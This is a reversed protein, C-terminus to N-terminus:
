PQSTRNSYLGHSQTSMMLCAAMKLVRSTIARDTHDRSGSLLRLLMNDQILATLSVECRGVASGDPLAFIRVQRRGIRDSRLAARVAEGDPAVVVEQGVSATVTPGGPLRVTLSRASRDYIIRIRTLSRERAVLVVSGGSIAVDCSKLNVAIPRTAFVLAEGATFDFRGAARRIVIASGAHRFIAGDASAIGAATVPQRSAAAPFVCSIPRFDQPDAPLDADRSGAAAGDSWIRNQDLREGPGGNLPALPLIFPAAQYGPQAQGYGGPAESRSKLLSGPDTRSAGGALWGAGAPAATGSALGATGPLPPDAVVTVHSGLRIADGPLSGTSFDVNRGLAVLLDEAPGPQIGNAGFYVRGGAATIVTVKPPTVGAVPTAPVPGLVIAVNGLSPNSATYAHIYAGAGISISGGAIDNDQLTINGEMADLRASGTLCLSGSGAALSISGGYTHIVRASLSGSASLSFSGAASSRDLAVSGSNNIFASGGSDVQLTAAATQVPAAATGISGGSTTVIVQPAALLSGPQCYVNGGATTKLFVKRATVTGAVTIDGSAKLKFVNGASSDLLGVSGYQRLHASGHGATSAALMRAATHVAHSSTGINGLQSALNVNQAALTGATWVMDGSGQTSIAISNTATVNGGLHVGGNNATTQINVRSSASIPGYIGMNGNGSISLSGDSFLQGSAGLSFVTGTLTSSIAVVASSPALTGSFQETGNIVVRPTTSAATLAINMPASSQFDKLTLTVHAPLNEATLTPALVSPTLVANGGIAIGGSVQLTGGILGQSQMSVLLGVVAPDTLDLSTLQVQPPPPPPNPNIAHSQITVSGGLQIAGAALGGTDFVVSSGDVSVQNAPASASIGNAGWFVNGGNSLTVSVSSPTTGAVPSQPTSGIVVNIRGLATGGTTAVLTSGQGIVIAGTTTNSNAININGETASLSSGPAVTLPASADGAATVSISGNSATLNGVTLAGSAASITIASATATVTGGMANVNATATGAGANFSVAGPASVSGGSLTVSGATAPNFLINAGAATAALQGSSGLSISLSGDGANSQLSISGGSATMSGAVSVTGSTIALSGASVSGNVNLSNTSISVANGSVTGDVNASGGALSVSSGSATMGPAVSIASAPGSALSLSGGNASVNDTLSLNGGSTLSINGVPATVAGVVLEGTSVSASVSSGNATLTGIMSNPSFSVAGTGGNLSVGSGASLAGGSETIAGAATPNFLVSAGSASATLTGGAGVTVSLSGDAANSQLTLNGSSATLSGNVALTGATVAVSGGSLSGNVSLSDASVSLASGSVAGDVSVSGGALSVSSGSATVGSSVSLASTSGSALSLSGGNASVNGTLSLNGNGAALSVGGASSTVTGAVLDGTSVSVSVSTGGAALTGSLSNPNFSVAGAGGNLSVAAGAAIAGGTETIAGAATPNFLVSAGSASASLAGGAGLAVSLSGTGANSQLSINGANATVIGNLALTGSTVSVSNGSVAAGALLSLSGTPSTSLSVNGGAATVSSNISLSGGGASLSVDGNSSSIAGAALNGSGSSITVSSGSAVVLGTLTGGGTVSVPNSPDSFTLTGQSGTGSNASITGALSVALPAAAENSVTITGGNGSGPADATLNGTIGSSTISSGVIFPNTADRYLVGISGGNGTGLGNASLTGNIQLTGTGATGAAFNFNAGNGGTGTPGATIASTAVTLNQGASLSVSGGNGGTTGSQVAIAGIQGALSGTSIGASTGLTTISVQGGNGGAGNGGKASFTWSGNGTSNTLTSGRLIIAGGHAAGVADASYTGGSLDLPGAVSGGAANLNITGGQGNLTLVVVSLFGPNTVKIGGSGDNVISITGGNGTTGGSAATAVIGGAACNACPTTGGVVFPVGTDTTQNVLVSVSGGNSGTARGGENTISGFSANGGAAVAIISGPATLNNALISATQTSGSTFSGGTATGTSINVNIAGGSIVPTAASLTINGTGSNGGTSNINGLSLSNTGAGPSAGAILTVNGNNGTGYGGSRVTLNNLTPLNITGSGAASGAYAVLTINGANGPGGSLGQSTFTSLPSTVFDIKGGTSSGGAALSSNTLTLTTGDSTANAGAVILINGGNSTSSSTNISLSSAVTAVNGSAVISLDQGSFVMNSSISVNGSTNFFTPDGSLNMTGLVLNNTATTVHAQGASVNVTGTVNGADLTVTGSGSYLNLERSLLDGGAVSLNAAGAFSADRFNIAGQLASLTGLKNDIQLDQQLGPGVNINSLTSTILGSNFINNSVLNVNNVAQILPGPGSMGAPLANVIRGGASMTLSGSSIIQGANYINQVANLVLNLHPLPNAVNALLTSPVVSSILAGPQNFINTATVTGRSVGGASSFAYLKGANTLNGSLFLNPNGAFNYLATVGGPLVLNTVNQMLGSSLLVRGGTAAGLAGIQISQTGTKLIQSVAVYEAPTLLTDPRVTLATGGVRITVPALTQSSVTRATSSLDM